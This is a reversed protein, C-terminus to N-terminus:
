EEFFMQGRVSVAATGAGPPNRIVIGAGQAQPMVLRSGESWAMWRFTAQQNLVFEDLSAGLTGNASWNSGGQTASAADAQDIPSESQADYTGSTTIRDVVYRQVTNAPTADSGVKLEYVFARRILTGPAVIGVFALASSSAITGTCSYKPM